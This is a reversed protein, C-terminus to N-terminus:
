LINKRLDVPLDFTLHLFCLPGLHNLVLQPNLPNPQLSSQKQEKLPYSKSIWYGDRQGHLPLNLRVELESSVISQVVRLECRHELERSSLLSRVQPHFPLLPTVEEGNVM